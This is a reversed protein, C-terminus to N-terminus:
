RVYVCAYVCVRAPEYVFSCGLVCLCAWARVCACMCMFVYVCLCCVCVSLCMCVHVCACMCVCMRARQAYLSAAFLCLCTIAPPVAPSRCTNTTTAETASSSTAPSSCFLCLPLPPVPPPALPPTSRSTDSHESPTKLACPHPISPLTLLAQSRKPSLQAPQVSIPMPTRVKCGPDCASISDQVEWEEPGIIIGM